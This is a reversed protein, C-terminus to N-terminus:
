LCAPASFREDAYIEHVDSLKWIIAIRQRATRKRTKLGYM